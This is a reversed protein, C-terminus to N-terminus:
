ITDPLGASELLQSKLQKKNKPKRQNGIANM